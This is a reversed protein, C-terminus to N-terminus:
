PAILRLQVNKIAAGTQYTAIGLPVSFEIPGPRLSIKRGAIKVDIIKEEDLWAEIKAPAVRLRVHYWRNNEFAPGKTTENESADLDDISSLGTVSGGWGSVILSCYSDAVPFTLGCFFDNGDTRMADLSIEYNTRPLAGNTWNVGTMIGGAGLRLENSSVTVAGRAVFDTNTWGTLDRGNFISTWNTSWAPAAGASCAAACTIILLPLLRKM